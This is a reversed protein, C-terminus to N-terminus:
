IKKRNNECSFKRIRNAFFSVIYPLVAIVVALVIFLIINDYHIEKILEDKGTIHYCKYFVIEKWRGWAIIMENSITEPGGGIFSSGQVLGGFIIVLEVIWYRIMFFRTAKLEKYSIDAKIANM